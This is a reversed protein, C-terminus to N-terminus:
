FLKELLAYFQPQQLNNKQPTVGKLRRVAAQLRTTRRRRASRKSGITTSSAGRYPSTTAARQDSPGECAEGAQDPGVPWQQVDSPWKSVITLFLDLFYFLKQM